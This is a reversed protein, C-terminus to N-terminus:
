KLLQVKEEGAAVDGIIYATEGAKKAAELARDAMNPNVVIVMGIGMNFINYMEMVDLGGTQQMLKFLPPM